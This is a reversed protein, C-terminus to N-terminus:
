YKDLLVRLPQGNVVFGGNRHEELVARLENKRKPDRERRYQNWAQELLGELKALKKWDTNSFSELATKGQGYYNYKKEVEVSQTKQPSTREQQKEPVANVVQTPIDSKNNESPFLFLLVLSALGVGIIMALVGKANESM